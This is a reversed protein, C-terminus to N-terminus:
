GLVCAPVRRKWRFAVLAVLTLYGAKLRRGSVAWGLGLSAEGAWARRLTLGRGRGWFALGPVM